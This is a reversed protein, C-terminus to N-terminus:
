EAICSDCDGIEPVFEEGKLKVFQDFGSEFYHINYYGQSFLKDALYSAESGDEDILVILYNYDTGLILKLDAAIQDLSKKIGKSNVSRVCFFGPIRGRRCDEESRLDYTKSKHTQAQILILDFDNIEDDSYVIIEKNKCGCLFFFLFLVLLKRM